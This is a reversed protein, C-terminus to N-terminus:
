RRALYWNWLAFRSERFKSAFVIVTSLKTLWFTEEWRLAKRKISSFSYLLLDKSKEFECLFSLCDNFTEPANLIDVANDFVTGVNTSKNAGKKVDFLSFAGEEVFEADLHNIVNGVLFESTPV